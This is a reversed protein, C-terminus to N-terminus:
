RKKMAVFMANAAIACAAEGARATWPPTPAPSAVARPTTSRSNFAAPQVNASDASISGTATACAASTRASATANQRLSLTARHNFFFM